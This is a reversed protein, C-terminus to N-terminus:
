LVRGNAQPHVMHDMLISPLPVPANATYVTIERGSNSNVFEGQFLMKTSLCIVEIEELSLFM